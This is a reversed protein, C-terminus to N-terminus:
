LTRILILTLPILIIILLTIKRWQLIGAYLGTVILMPNDIRTRICGRFPNGTYSIQEKERFSIIWRTAFPNTCHLRYNEGQELSLVGNLGNGTFRIEALQELTSADLVTVRSCFFKRPRFLYKNGKLCAMTRSSFAVPSLEGRQEEEHFLQYQSEHWKKHWFIRTEM